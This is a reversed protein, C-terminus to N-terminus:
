VEYFVEVFINERIIKGLPDLCDGICERMYKHEVSEPDITESLVIENGFSSKVKLPKIVERDEHVLCVSIRGESVKQPLQLTNTPKTLKIVECRPTNTV